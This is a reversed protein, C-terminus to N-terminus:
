KDDGRGDDDDYGDDDDQDDDDDYGDDDDDDDDDDLLPPTFGELTGVLYNDVTSLLSVYHETDYWETADTGCHDTIISRGGPHKRAYDTMDYVNGHYAMWCDEDPDSHQAMEMVSLVGENTLSAQKFQYGQKNMFFYVGLGIGILVVIGLLLAIIRSTRQQKPNKFDETDEQYVPPQPQEEHNEEQQQQQEMESARDGESSNPPPPLPVPPPPPPPPPCMEIPEDNSFYKTM